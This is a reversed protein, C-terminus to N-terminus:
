KLGTLQTKALALRIGRTAGLERLDSSMQLDGKLDIGALAELTAKRIQGEIERAVDDPLQVSGLDVVFRNTGARAATAATKAATTRAATKKAPAAAKKTPPM